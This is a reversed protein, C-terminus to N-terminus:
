KTGETGHREMYERLAAKIIPAKQKGDLYEILDADSKHMMKITIITSNNKMWTKKAESDGM